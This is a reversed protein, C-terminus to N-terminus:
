FKKVRAGTKPREGWALGGIPVQKEANSRVSKANGRKKDKRRIKAPSVPKVGREARGDGRM